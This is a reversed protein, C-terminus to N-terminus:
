WEERPVVRLETEYDPFHGFLIDPPATKLVRGKVEEYQGQYELLQEGNEDFVIVMNSAFRIATKIMIM